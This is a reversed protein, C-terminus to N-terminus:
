DKTETNYNAKLENPGLPISLIFYSLIQFENQNKM